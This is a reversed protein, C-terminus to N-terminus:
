IVEGTAFLDVHDDVQGQIAEDTANEIQIVTAANNAALLAWYMRESEARPNSFVAAAWILRNAHNATGPDEDKIQEASIICAVVVKNLLDTNSHLDFLETYTAM